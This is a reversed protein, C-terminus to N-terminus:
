RSERQVTLIAMKKEKLIVEVCWPATKEIGSQVNKTLLLSTQCASKDFENEGLLFLQRYVLALIIM